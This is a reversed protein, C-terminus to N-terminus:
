SKRVAWGGGLFFFLAYRLPVPVANLLNFLFNLNLTNKEREALPTQIPKSLSLVYPPSMYHSIAHCSISVRTPQSKKITEEHYLFKDIRVASEAYAHFVTCVALQFHRSDTIEICCHSIDLSQYRFM